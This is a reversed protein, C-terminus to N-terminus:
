PKPFGLSKVEGVSLIQIFEGARSVASEVTMSSLAQRAYIRSIRSIRPTSRNAMITSPEPWVSHVSSGTRASWSVAPSRRIGVGLPSLRMTITLGAHAITCSGSRAPLLRCISISEVRVALQSRGDSAACVGDSTSSMRANGACSDSSCLVSAVSHVCHRRRAPRAASATYRGSRSRNVFM